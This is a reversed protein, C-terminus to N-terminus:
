RTTPHLAPLARAVDEPTDLEHWGIGSIDAIEVREGDDALKQLVLEVHATEGATAQVAAVAERYRALHTEPIYTMGVYGCDWRELQKSIQTIRTGDLAVKMDDATLERDFDPKSEHPVAEGHRLLWLQQSAM